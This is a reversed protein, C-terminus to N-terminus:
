GHDLDEDDDGEDQSPGDRVTEGAETVDIDYRDAAFDIRTVEEPFPMADDVISLEALYDDLNCEFGPVARWMMSTFTDGGTSKRYFHGSSDVRIEHGDVEVEWFHYIEHPGFWRRPGVVGVCASAEPSLHPLRKLVCLVKAVAACQRPGTAPSRLVKMLLDIAAHVVLWDRGTLIYGESEVDEDGPEQENM